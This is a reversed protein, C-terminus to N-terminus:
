PGLAEDWLILLVVADGAILLQIGGLAGLALLHNGSTAHGVLVLRPVALAERTGVAALRQGPLPEGRPLLLGVTGFAEPLEKCLLAESAALRDRTQTARLVYGKLVTMPMVLMEVALFARSRKYSLAEQGVVVVDQTGVASAGGGLCFACFVGLSARRADVQLEFLVVDFM